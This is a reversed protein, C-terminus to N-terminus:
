FVHKEGKARRIGVIRSSSQVARFDTPRATKRVAQAAAGRREDPSKRRGENPESGYVLALWQRTERVLVRGSPTSTGGGLVYRSGVYITACTGRRRRCKTSQSRWRSSKDVLSVNKENYPLYLMLFGSLHSGCPGSESGAGLVRRTASTPRTSISSRMAAPKINVCTSPAAARRCSQASDPREFQEAPLQAFGRPSVAAPM